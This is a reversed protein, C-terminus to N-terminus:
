RPPPTRQAAQAGPGTFVDELFAALDANSRERVSEDRGILYGEGDACLGLIMKRNFPDSMAFPWLSGTVTGDRAVHFRCPALNRGIMRPGVTRGDWQHVADPYVMTEVRGGGSELEEAISACRAPDVIADKGGYLMLLPAGTARGDEFEAICPAYFAVHGAFREGGSALTEAVQAFAAYTAAMGGYSFGILVVRSGDVEPRADLYRLAAYADALVMTETINLLRDIFGTARDRRAGFSDVVLAAVGMAALQRGYRMEREQQVGSAGHLMVVAPVPHDASAGRPLFLAGRATTPPSREAGAVADALSFPSRSPFSVTRNAIGTLAAEQPWPPSLDPRAAGHDAAVGDPGALAWAAVAICLWRRLPGPSRPM